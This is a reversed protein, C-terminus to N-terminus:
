LTEGGAPEYRSDQYAKELEKIFLSVLKAKFYPNTQSIRWVMQAIQEAEFEKDCSPPSGPWLESLDPKKM